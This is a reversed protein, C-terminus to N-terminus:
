AAKLAGNRVIYVQGALHLIKKVKAYSYIALILFIQMHLDHNIVKDAVDLATANLNLRAKKFLM